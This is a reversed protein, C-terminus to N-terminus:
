VRTFYTIGNSNAPYFIRYYTNGVVNRPLNRGSITLHTDNAVAGVYFNNAFGNIKIIDGVELSSFNTGTGILISTNGNGNNATVTGVMPTNAVYVVFTNSNISTSKYIGNTLNITTNSFELYVNSNGSAVRDFTTSVTILKGNANSTAVYTGKYTGNAYVGSTESIRANLTQGDDYFLYEGFMKMGSPHILGKLAQRYENISRKLKVVYSFDQYYDRDELFNYGSLHGDDNLYRGPYTFIGEIITASAQATGDGKSQLNLTPTERYNLGRSIISLQTIAGAFSTNARLTEGDGLVTTVVINAGNGNASNVTALPLFNQDYGSGGTIQGPVPVFKVQTIRGNASVNTVNAAAGEGYGFPVNNFTITDGIQYNLGGDVIRMAGLIGLARVQTNAIATVIPLSTYNNGANLVQLALIPGTNAFLFYSVANSVSTNVNSSSLNSYIANGIPTNAELSITSAVINYSNPHVSSDSRVLFVSGNADSGGGGSFLLPDDTRFGAGGAEALVFAINGNAVASVVIVAGTGTNSEVVVQDGPLYGIGPNIIEVTNISGSFLNATVFRETGDDDFYTTYIQEGNFFNRAIGSIKLERVLTGGEYYPDAREVLAYANSTNGTIRRSTLKKLTEIDDKPVGDVKVDTIKVSKEIFWKGDSARLVDNKPYYFSSVEEGFLMRTLFNISKETGRARYFEKINKLLFTKDVNTEEPIFKLLSDYFKQLFLDISTDVDYYKQMNKLIDLQQGEQELFEYYAELFRIFNPHENRVFFPVQSNILYSIKNNSDTM